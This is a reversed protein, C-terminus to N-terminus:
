AVPEVLQLFVATILRALLIISLGITRNRIGTKAKTVKEEDGGAMMWKIGDWIILVLFILGLIGIIGQFYIGIIEVFGKPPEKDPIFGGAKAIDWMAQRMQAAMGTGAPRQALAALPGVALLGLGAGGLRIAHVAGRRQWRRM